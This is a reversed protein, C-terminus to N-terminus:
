GRDALALDIQRRHSAEHEAWSRVADAVSYPGRRAHVGRRAWEAPGLPTLRALAQLRLARWAEIQAEASVDPVGAAARLAPLDVEPLEPNSDRLLRELRPVFVVRDSDILHAVLDHASWREPSPRRMWRSAGTARLRAAAWEPGEALASLRQGWELFTMAPPRAGEVGLPAAPGPVRQGFGRALYERSLAVYHRNGERIARQHSEQVPGLIRAPAGLALSGPPIVQGERVLAGAGVLSGAGVRAGSLVIAAMGILCDDGIECGHVVARHGVTVRAGVIAPQGHDVHVMTLDQLNSEEGIEIRDTDGRIVTHFWVSARAGIRVAGTVIAGTALFVTPDIELRTSWETAAESM